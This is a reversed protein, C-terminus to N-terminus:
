DNRPSPSFFDVDGYDKEKHRESATFCDEGSGAAESSICIAHGHRHSPSRNLRLDLLCALFRVIPRDVALDCKRECRANQVTPMASRLMPYNAPIM